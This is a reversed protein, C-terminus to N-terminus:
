DSWRQAEKDYGILDLDINLTKLMMGMTFTEDSGGGSPEEDEEEEEEEEKEVETREYYGEQEEDERQGEIGREEKDWQSRWERQEKERERWGQVGGMRNVRDRTGAFLEEAAARTASIWKEVLVKLEEDTGATVLNYAQTLTQIDSRLSIIERNVSRNVPTKKQTSRSSLPTRPAHALPKSQLSLPLPKPETSDTIPAPTSPRDTNLSSVDSQPPPRSSTRFPSKFPKHLTQSADNLRRRKTSAPTSM